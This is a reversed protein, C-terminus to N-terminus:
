QVPLLVSVRTGRQPVGEIDIQGHHLEILRKAIILGLGSGQQEYLKREFQVYAGVRSIQDASMGRGNDAVSLLYGDDVPRGIVKIKTGEASFKFANDVLEDIIKKFNNEAILVPIDATELVLDAERNTQVAKERAVQEIVMGPAKTVENGMAILRNPDVKLLELQSYLLFNEILRHLRTGAKVIMQAMHEVQDPGLSQADMLLM